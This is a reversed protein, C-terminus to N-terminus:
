DLLFKRKINYKSLKRKPTLDTNFVMIQHEHDFLHATLGGDTEGLDHSEMPRATYPSGELTLVSSHKIETRRRVMQTM